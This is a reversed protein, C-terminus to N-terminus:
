NKKQKKKIVKTETTKMMKRLKNKFKKRIGLIKM